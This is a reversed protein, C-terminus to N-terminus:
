DAPRAKLKLKGDEGPALRFRVERCGTRSRIAAVQKGLYSRFTELEVKAKGADGILAAYLADVGPRDLREDLVIGRRPDPRREERTLTPAGRGEEAERLKKQFLESVTAFRAELGGLRFLDVSTKRPEGQLRRLENAIRARLEEPPVALAGNLFRTHDIELQRISRALRDIDADLAMTTALRAPRAIRTPDPLRSFRELPM